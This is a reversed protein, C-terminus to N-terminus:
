SCGLAPSAGLCGARKKEKPQVAIIARSGRRFSDLKGERDLVWKDLDACYFASVEFQLTLTVAQGDNPKM